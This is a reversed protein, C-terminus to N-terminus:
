KREFCVEWLNEGTEQMHKVLRQRFNYTTRLEFHGEDLQNLGLAYRVQVNYSFNNYMEEDTWGNGDKLIEFGILINVPVNPRSAQDSYLIEFTKEDLRCFVEEYFIKAWSNELRKRQKEPLSNTSSFLSKQLHKKNEKFM